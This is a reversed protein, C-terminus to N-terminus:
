PLLLALVASSLALLVLTILDSRQSRWPTRSTRQLHLQLAILLLGGALTLGAIRVSVLIALASVVGVLLLPIVSTRNM